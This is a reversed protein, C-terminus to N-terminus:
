ILLKDHCKDSKSKKSQEKLFGPFETKAGTLSGKLPQQHGGVILSWTAERNGEWVLMVFPFDGYKSLFFM